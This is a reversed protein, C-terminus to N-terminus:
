KILLQAADASMTKFCFIRARRMIYDKKSLPLEDRDLLKERYKKFDNEFVKCASSAISFVVPSFSSDGKFKEDPESEPFLVSVLQSCDELENDKIYIMITDSIYKQASMDFLEKLKIQIKKSQSSMYKKLESEIMEGSSIHNFEDIWSNSYKHALELASQQIDEFKCDSCTISFVEFCFFEFLKQFGSKQSEQASLTERLEKEKGLLLNERVQQKLRESAIKQAVEQSVEFNNIKRAEAVLNEFAEARKDLFKNLWDILFESNIGRVSIHQFPEKFEGLKCCSFFKIFDIVSLHHYNDFITWAISSIDGKVETGFFQALNELEIVIFDIAIKWGDDVSSVASKLSLFSQASELSFSNAISMKQVQTGKIAIHWVLAEITDYHEFNISKLKVDQSMKVIAKNVEQNSLVAIGSSNFEM